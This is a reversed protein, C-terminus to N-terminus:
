KMSFDQSRVYTAESLQLGEKNLEKKLLIM